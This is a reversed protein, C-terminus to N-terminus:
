VATVDSRGVERAQRGTRCTERKGDGVIVHTLKKIIM